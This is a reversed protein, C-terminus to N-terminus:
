NIIKKAAIVFVKNDKDVDIIYNLGLEKLAGTVETEEEKDIRCIGYYIFVKLQNYWNEKDYKLKRINLNEM